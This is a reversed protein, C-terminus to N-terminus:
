RAWRSNWRQAREVIDTALREMWEIQMWVGLKQQEKDWRARFGRGRLQRLAWKVRKRRVRKKAEDADMNWWWWGPEYVKKPM